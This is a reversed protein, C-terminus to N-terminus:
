PRAPRCAGASRAPRISAPAAPRPSRAPAACPIRRASSAASARSRFRREVGVHLREVVLAGPLGLHEVRAARDRRQGLLLAGLHLALGDRGERLDPREAEHERDLVPGLVPRRRAVLLRRLHEVLREVGDDRQGLVVRPLGSSEIYLSSPGGLTLWCRTSSKPAAIQATYSRRCSQRLMPGRTSVSGCPLSARGCRGRGRRCRCSICSTGRHRHRRARVQRARAQAM